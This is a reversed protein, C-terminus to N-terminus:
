LGVAAGEEQEVGLRPLGISIRDCLVTSRSLPPWPGALNSPPPLPVPPLISPNTTSLFLARHTHTHTDSDSSVFFPKLSPLLHTYQPRTCFPIKAHPHLRTPSQSITHAHTTQFFSTSLSLTHTHAHTPNLSYTPLLNLSPTHTHWLFPTETHSNHPILFPHTHTHRLSHLQM